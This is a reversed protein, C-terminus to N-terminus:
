KISGTIQYIPTIISLALFAVALGIFILLVPELINSLNKTLDDVEAEFFNALYLLTDDLSGTKEGVEIMRICLKSYLFPWKSLIKGLPEGQKITEAAEKLSLQFYYNSVVKSTILLSEDITLGSKLLSGMTRTFRSLNLDRSIKKFIPLHLIIWHTLPRMFKRKLLWILFIIALFLILIPWAGYQHFFEGIKVLINTTWPLKTHLGKFLPVLKPLIFFITGLGVIFVFILIIMPYLMAAKIKKKLNYNKEMQIALQGLNQELTGSSEGARILNIFIPSFTKPFDALSEHLSFGANTKDRIKELIKKFKGKSQDILVNFADSLSMGSKLMISLHKVFLLKTVTSVKGLTIQSLKFGKNKKKIKRKQPM